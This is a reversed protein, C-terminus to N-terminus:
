VFFVGGGGGGTFKGGVMAEVSWNSM